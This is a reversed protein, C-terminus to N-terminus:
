LSTEILPVYVDSFYVIEEVIGDPIEKDEFDVSGDSLLGYYIGKNTKLIYISKFEKDIKNEKVKYLYYVGSNILEKTYKGLKHLDNSKIEM